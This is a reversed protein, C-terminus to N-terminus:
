TDVKSTGTEFPSQGNKRRLMLIYRFVPTHLGKSLMVSGKITTPKAPEDNNKSSSTMAEGEQKKPVVQCEQKKPTTKGTSKIEKPLAEPVMDKDMYFKADM